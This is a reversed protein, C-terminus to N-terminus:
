CIENEMGMITQFLAHYKEGMTELSFSDEFSTMDPQTFQMLEKVQEAPTTNYDIPEGIEVIEPTGGTPSYLVPLGCAQAELITNSCADYMYPLFAIDCSRYLNALRQQDDIVGVYEYEEGNHFEFPHDIRQYDDAFRGVLVLTDGQKELNYERWWYQTQHFQKVENRSYKSYLIRINDWSKEETRPKFIKTDVGNYIVIGNGILPSLLRKAWESQYVITTAIEAFSRLRPMGSNRNKSDELINDTRLVIRKNQRHAEYATEKEVLTAGAIFLIDYEEGPNVFTYGFPALAKKLNAQFTQGGGLSIRTATPMLIRYM